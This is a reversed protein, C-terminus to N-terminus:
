TQHAHNDLFTSWSQGWPRPGRTQRMYKQITRKCVHIGLKLLEGRIREAGWLQNEMAMRRILEITEPAIRPERSKAKSKARWFLRFGKRHWRLVTEPKVLLTANQWGKTIAALGVMFARECPRLLPTKIRREAVILQQRLLANEALLTPRSRFVDSALGAAISPRPRLLEFIAHRATKAARSAMESM